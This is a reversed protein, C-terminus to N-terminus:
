GTRGADVVIPKGSAKAAALADAYKTLWKVEVADGQAAVALALVATLM